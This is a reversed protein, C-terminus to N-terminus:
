LSWLAWTPSLRVARIASLLGALAGILIAPALGGVWADSPIVTVEQWALCESGMHTSSLDSGPEMLPARAPTKAAARRM